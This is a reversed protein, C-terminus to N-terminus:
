RMGGQRRFRPAYKEVWEYITDMAYFDVVIQEVDRYVQTDEYIRKFPEIADDYKGALFLRLGEAYLRENRQEITYFDDPDGWVLAPDTKVQGDADNDQGLAHKNASARRLRAVIWATSLACGLAVGVVLAVIQSTM